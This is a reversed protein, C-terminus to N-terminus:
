PMLKHWMEELPFLVVSRGSIVPGTKRTDKKGDEPM